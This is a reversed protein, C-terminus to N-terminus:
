AAVEKENEATQKTGALMRFLSYIATLLFTALLYVSFNRELIAAFIDFTDADIPSLLLLQEAQIFATFPLYYAVEQILAPMSEIPWTAGCLMFSLVGIFACLEVALMDSFGLVLCIVLTMMETTLVFLITNQALLWFDSQAVIDFHPFVWYTHCLGVAATVIFNGIMALPVATLRSLKVRETVRFFAAHTLLIILLSLSFFVVAPVLYFAYSLTPNVLSERLIDIPRLAALSSEPRDGLKRLIKMGYGVSFMTTVERVSYAVRRAYIINSANEYLLIDAGQKSKIQKEFNKPIVIAANGEDRKLRDQILDLNEGTPEIDLYENGSIVRTFLRSTASNDNDILYVKAPQIAHYDYISATLISAAMSMFILLIYRLRLIPFFLAKLAELFM